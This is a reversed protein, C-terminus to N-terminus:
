GDDAELRERAKRVVAASDRSVEIADIERQLEMLADGVWIQGSAYCTAAAQRLATRYIEETM